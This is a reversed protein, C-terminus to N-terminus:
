HVKGYETRGSVDVLTVKLLSWWVVLGGPPEVHIPNAACSCATWEMGMKVNCVHYM